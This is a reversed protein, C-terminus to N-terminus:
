RRSLGEGAGTVIKCRDGPRLRQLFCRDAGGLYCLLHTGPVVELVFEGDRLESVVGGAAEVDGAMVAAYGFVDRGDGTAARDLLALDFGSIGALVEFDDEHVAAVVGNWMRSEGLGPLSDQVTVVVGVVGQDSSPPLPVTCSALLSALGLSRAILGPRVTLRGVAPGRDRRRTM